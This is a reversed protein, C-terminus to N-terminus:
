MVLDDGNHSHVNSGTQGVLLGAVKASKGQGNGYLIRAAELGVILVCGCRCFQEVQQVLQLYTPVGSAPDLRFEIPSAAARGSPTVSGNGGGAGAPM